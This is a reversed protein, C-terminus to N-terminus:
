LKKLAVYLRLVRDWLRNARDDSPHADLWTGLEDRATSVQALLEVRATEFAPGREIRRISPTKREAERVTKTLVDLPHAPRAVPARPPPAYPVVAATVVPASAPAATSRARGRLTVGMVAVLAFAAVACAVGTGSSAPRRRSSRRRYAPM